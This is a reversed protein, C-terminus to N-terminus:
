DGASSDPFLALIENDSLGLAKLKAKGSTKNTEIVTKADDIEKQDAAAVTRLTNLESIESDTMDELNGNVYKKM